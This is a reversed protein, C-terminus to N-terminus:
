FSKTELITDLLEGMNDGLVINQVISQVIRLTSNSYPYPSSYSALSLRIAFEQWEESIPYIRHIACCFIYRGNCVHM